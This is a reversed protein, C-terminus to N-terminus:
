DGLKALKAWEADTYPKRVRMDSFQTVAEDGNGDIVTMRTLSVGTGEFIMARVLKQVNKPKPIVRLRFAAGSASEDSVTASAELAPRDGALIQSLTSTLAHLAPNEALSLTHAGSADQFRLMRADMVLLAAEPKHTRRILRAPRAYYLEGESVLPANLLAIRKEERFRASFAQTQRLKALIADVRSPEASASSLASLLALLAVGLSPM